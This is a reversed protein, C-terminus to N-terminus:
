DKKKKFQGPINGMIVINIVIVNQMRKDTSCIFLGFSQQKGARKFRSQQESVDTVAQQAASPPCVHQWGKACKSCSSFNWMRGTTAKLILQETIWKIPESNSIMCNPDVKLPSNLCHFKEFENSLEDVKKKKRQQAVIHRLHFRPM